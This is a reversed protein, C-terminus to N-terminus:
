PNWRLILLITQPAKRSIWLQLGCTRNVRVRMKSQIASDNVELSSDLLKACHRLNLNNVSKVGATSHAAPIRASHRVGLIRPAIENIATADIIVLSQEYAMSGAVALGYRLLSTVLANSTMRLVNTGLGWIFRSATSLIGM